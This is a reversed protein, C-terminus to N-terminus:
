VLQKHKNFMKEFQKKNESIYAQTDAINMETILIEEAFFEIKSNIKQITQPPLHPNKLEKTTKHIIAQKAALEYELLNLMGKASTSAHYLGESRDNSSKEIIALKKAFTKQWTRRSFGLKRYKEEETTIINNKKLQECRQQNKTTSYLDIVNKVYQKNIEQLNKQLEQTQSLTCNQLLTNCHNRKIELAKQAEEIHKACRGLPKRNCM